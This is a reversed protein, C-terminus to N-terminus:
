SIKPSNLQIGVMVLNNYARDAQKWAGRMAKITETFERLKADFMIDEKNQPAVFVALSDAQSEYHRLFLEAHYFDYSVQRYSGDKNIVEFASPGGCSADYSKASKLVKAALLMVADLSLSEEFAPRLLYHGLYSGVGICEYGDIKNVAGNSRIAFLNHGCAKGAPIWCGVLLEFGLADRETDPRSLVYEDIVPKVALRLAKKVNRVTRESPDLAEIADQCEDIAMKGNPEHGSLGFLYSDTGIACPFLKRQYIKAGGTYQTDSCLVVGDQVRFGAVITM